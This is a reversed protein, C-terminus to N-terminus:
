KKLVTAQKMGSFDNDLTVLSSRESVATAYQMADALGFKANKKRQATKVQAALLAIETTLPVIKAKSKIFLLEKEFSLGEKYFLGAIEAITITSTIIQGEEVLSRVQKGGQFYAVWVSTDVANTTM